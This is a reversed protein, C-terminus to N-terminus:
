AEKVENQYQNVAYAFYRMTKENFKYSRVRHVGSRFDNFSDITASFFTRITSDNRQVTKGILMNRLVIAPSSDSRVAAPFGTNVVNAFESLEWVCIGNLFLCWFALVVPAFRTLAKRRMVGCEAMYNFEKSHAKAYNLIRGKPNVGRSNTLQGRVIASFCATAQTDACPGELGEAKAIQEPTRPKGVDIVNVNAAVDRVVYMGVCRGSRVIASLRHQGDLLRGEKSFKITEGNDQWTGNTMEEAYCSVRSKDLKRYNGVNKELYKKATSPTIIEYKINM